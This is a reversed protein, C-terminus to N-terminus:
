KIFLSNLILSDASPTSCQSTVNNQFANFSYGIVLILELNSFLCLLQFSMENQVKM